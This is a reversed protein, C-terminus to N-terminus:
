DVESGGKEDYHLRVRKLVVRFEVIKSLGVKGAYAFAQV